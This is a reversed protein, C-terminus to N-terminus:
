IHILSLLYRLLLEPDFHSDTHAVFAWALGFIRPYGAFPGGTLKPLQRYYGAPLDSHIERINREILHYNDILWEAAPTIARGEGIAAVTSQYVSLLVGSNDKLRRALSSGKTTLPAVHQASALSRAHEGLREASFLEERIPDKGYWLPPHSFLSFASFHKRHM